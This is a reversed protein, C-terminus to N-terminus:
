YKAMQVRTLTLKILYFMSTTHYTQHGMLSSAQQYYHLLGKGSIEMSRKMYFQFITFFFIDWKELNKLCIIWCFVVFDDKRNM